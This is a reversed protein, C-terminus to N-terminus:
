AVAMTSSGKYTELTSSRWSRTVLEREEPSWDRVLHGWVWNEVGKPSTATDYCRNSSERTGRHDDSTRQEEAGSGVDLLNEGVQTGRDISTRQVQEPPGPGQSNLQTTSIGMGTQLGMFSQIRRYLLRVSRQLRKFCLAQRSSNERIRISRHRTRGMKRLDTRDSRPTPAVGTFSEEKLPSRCHRQVERSPLSSVIRHSPQRSVETIQVYPKSSGPVKHGRREPHLSSAYPQGDASPRPSEPSFTGRTKHGCVSRVDGQPKFAMEETGSILKGLPSDRRIPSGMRYGGRRDNPFAHNGAQTSQLNLGRVVLSTRSGSGTPNAAKGKIERTQVGYLIKPSPPLSASRQPRRFQRFKFPGLSMSNAETYCKRQTSDRQQSGQNKTDEKRPPQDSEQSHELSNRFVRNRSKADYRVQQPQSALRACSPNGCGLENDGRLHSPCILPRLALEDDPSAGQRIRSSPTSPSERCDARPLVGAIHRNQDYLRQEALFRSDQLTLNISVKKDQCACQARKPRIYPTRRRQEKTSFINKIYLESRRKEPPELIRQRKLLNIQQSM